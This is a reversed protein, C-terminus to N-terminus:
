PPPGRPRSCSRAAKSPPTRTAAPSGLDALVRIGLNLTQPRVGLGQIQQLTSPPITWFNFCSHLIIKRRKRGELSQLLTHRDELNRAEVACTNLCNQLLKFHLTTSSEWTSRNGKVTQTTGKYGKNIELCTGHLKM